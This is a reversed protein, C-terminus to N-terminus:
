VLQYGKPTYGSIGRFLTISGNEAAAQRSNAINEIKDSAHALQNRVVLRIEKFFLINKMRLYDYWVYVRSTEVEM